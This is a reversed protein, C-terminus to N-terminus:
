GPGSSNGCPTSPNLQAPQAFSDSTGDSNPAESAAQSTRLTHLLLARNGGTEIRRPAQCNCRASAVMCIDDTSGSGAVESGIDSMCVDAVTTNDRGVDTEVFVSGLVRWGTWYVM